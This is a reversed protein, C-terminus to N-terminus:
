QVFMRHPPFAHTEAVEKERKKNGKCHQVKSAISKTAQFYCVVAIHTPCCVVESFVIYFADM